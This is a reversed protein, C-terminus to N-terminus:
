KFPEKKPDKFEPIDEHENPKFEYKILREICIIKHIDSHKSAVMKSIKLLLKKSEM